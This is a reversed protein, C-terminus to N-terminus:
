ETTQVHCRFVTLSPRAFKSACIGDLNRFALSILQKAHLAAFFPRTRSELVQVYNKKAGKM